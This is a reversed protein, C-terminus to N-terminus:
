YGLKEIMLLIRLSTTKPMITAKTDAPSLVSVADLVMSTGAISMVSMGLASSTGVM